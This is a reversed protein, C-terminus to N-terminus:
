EDTDPIHPRVAGLRRRERALVWWSEPVDGGTWREIRVRMEHDPRREGTIWHNVSTRSVSLARAADTPSVGHRGMFAALSAAGRSIGEAMVFCYNRKRGDDVAFVGAITAWGKSSLAGASAHNLRWYM